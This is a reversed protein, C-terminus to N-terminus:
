RQVKIQLSNPRPLVMSRKRLGRCEANAISGSGFNGGGWVWGRHGLHIGGGVAM